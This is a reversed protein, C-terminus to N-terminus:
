ARVARVMGNVRQESEESDIGARGEAFNQRFIRHSQDTGVWLVFWGLKSEELTTKTQVSILHFHHVRERRM